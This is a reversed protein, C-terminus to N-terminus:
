LKNAATLIRELQQERSINGPIVLVDDRDHVRTQNEYAEADDAWLNFRALLKERDTEAMRRDEIRRDLFRKEREARPVDIWVRLDWDIPLGILKIGEVVILQKRDPSPLENFSNSQWDYEKLNLEADPAGLPKGVEEMFRAVNFGGPAGAVTEVGQHDAPEFYHDTHIVQREPEVGYYSTLVSALTTKGSGAPGDLAFVLGHAQEISM